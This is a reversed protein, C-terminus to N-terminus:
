IATAVIGSYCRWCTRDPSSAAAKDTLALLIRTASSASRAPDITKGALGFIADLSDVFFRLAGPTPEKGRCHIFVGKVSYTMPDAAM